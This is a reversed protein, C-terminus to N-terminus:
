CSRRVKARLMAGAISASLLYIPVLVYCYRSGAIPAQFTVAANVLLPLLLICSLFKERLFIGLASLLGLVAWVDPWVLGLGLPDRFWTPLPSLYPTLFDLLQQQGKEYFPISLRPTQFFNPMREGTSTGTIWSLYRYLGMQASREKFASKFQYIEEKRNSSFALMCFGSSDLACRLRTLTVQFRDFLLRNSIQGVRKNVEAYSLGHEMWFQGIESTENYDIKTNGLFTEVPYEPPFPFTGIYKVTEPSPRPNAWLAFVLRTTGISPMFFKGTLACRYCPFFLWAVIVAAILSIWSSRPVAGRRVFLAILGTAFLTLGCYSRVQTVLFLSVLLVAFERFGFAKKGFGLRICVTLGILLFSSSLSETLLANHFSQYFPLSCLLACTCLHLRSPWIQNISSFAYFLAGAALGHQFLAMVPWRWTEPLTCLLRWLGPTGMGVHAHNLMGKFGYFGRLAEPDTLCSGLSTYIICDVWYTAGFVVLAYLHSVMLIAALWLGFRAGISTHIRKWWLADLRSDPEAIGSSQSTSHEFPM